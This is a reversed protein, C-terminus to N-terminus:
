SGASENAKDGLWIIGRTFGGKAQFKRQRIRELEAAEIGLSQALARVVELVDALEEPAEAEDADLFEQVEENLKERLREMYEANEAIYTTPDGGDQRIIEPIKDRVLKGAKRM